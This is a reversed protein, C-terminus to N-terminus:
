VEYWPAHIDPSFKKQGRYTDHPTFLGGMAEESTKMVESIVYKYAGPGHIYYVMDEIYRYADELEDASIRLTCEDKVFHEIVYFTTGFSFDPPTIEHRDGDDFDIYAYGDELITTDCM